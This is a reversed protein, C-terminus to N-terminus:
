GATYIYQQYNGHKVPKNHHCIYKTNVISSSFAAVDYAVITAESINGGIEAIDSLLKM